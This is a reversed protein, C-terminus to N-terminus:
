VVTDIGFSRASRTSSVMSSRAELARTVEDSEQQAADDDLVLPLTFEGFGLEFLDGFLEAPQAIELSGAQASRLQGTSGSVGRGDAELSGPGRGVGGRVSRHSRLHGRYLTRFLAKQRSRM